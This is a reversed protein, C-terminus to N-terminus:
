QPRPPVPTLQGTPRATGAWTSITAGAAAEGLYCASSAPLKAEGRTRFSGGIAAVPQVAVLRDELHVRRAGAGM